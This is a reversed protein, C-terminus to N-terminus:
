VSDYLKNFKEDSMAYGDQRNDQNYVLWDGPTYDTFGEKTQIKGASTAQEAWVVASKVYWGVVETQVYTSAFSDRDITYRETGRGVLWDGSKATQVGGWKTYTFLPVGDEGFNLQIAQIPAGKPKFKNM